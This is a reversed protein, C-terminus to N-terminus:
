RIYLVPRTTVGNYSTMNPYLESRNTVPYFSSKGSYSGGRNCRNYYSYAEQTWESCNGAIDYINNAKWYESYGTVQKSGYKNEGGVIVKADGEADRYNGYTVSSNIDRQKIVNGEKYTSIFNCIQDWQCGWIMRSYVIDENEGFVKCAKYLNYWDTNTLVTQEDQIVPSEVSGGLEYRGVYFGGYKRISDIMNRYDDKLSIAMNFYSTFGAATWNTEKNDYYTDNLLDPERWKKIGPNSRIKNISKYKTVVPNIGTEGGTGCLTWGIEDEAYMTNLDAASVPIWVWENDGKKIVLGNDIGQESEVDSLTYGAPIVATKNDSTYKSNVDAEIGPTATPLSSISIGETITGDLSVYYIRGSSFTVTWPGTETVESDDVTLIPNADTYKKIKYENYGLAIKEKENGISNSDKADAAKTLIGNDGTLTVITVGALILLLIITIVLAILTIGNNSKKVSEITNKQKIKM